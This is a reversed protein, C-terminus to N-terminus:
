VLSFRESVHARERERGGTRRKQGRGVGGRGEEVVVGKMEWGREDRKIEGGDKGGWAGEKGEEGGGGDAAEEGRM